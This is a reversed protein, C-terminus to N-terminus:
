GWTGDGGNAAVVQRERIRAPLPEMSNGIEKSGGHPSADAVWFEALVACNM